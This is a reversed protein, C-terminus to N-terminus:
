NWHVWAAYLKLWINLHLAAFTNCIGTFSSISLSIPTAPCDHLWEMLVACAACGCFTWWFSSFPDAASAAAQLKLILNNYWQWHCQCQWLSHMLILTMPKALAMIHSGAQCSEVGMSLPVSMTLSPVYWLRTLMQIKYNHNKNVINYWTPLCCMTM